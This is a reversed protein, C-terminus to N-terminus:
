ENGNIQGFNEFNRIFNVVGNYIGGVVGDLYTDDILLSFEEPNTVFGIEILVSPMKANRVVYWSEEKLGRNPSYMGIREDMGSLISRALLISEMTIEEDRITNIISLVQPDAVGTQDPNVLNVRRIEPPLYWVEFGRAESNLSANAHISIFVIAENSTVEISNALVTREELTLYEDTTRSLLIQKDRYERLLLDRLRLATDLVLDKENLIVEEEGIRHRGITGPDRGGHGPDIFIAAVRRTYEEAQPPFYDRITTELAAPIMITGGYRFARRADVLRQYDLIVYDSELNFHLTRNSRSLVGTELVPDWQVSIDLEESLDLLPIAEQAAIPSM